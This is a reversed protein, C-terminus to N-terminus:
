RSEVGYFKFGNNVKVFQFNHVQNNYWVGFNIQTRISVEYIILKGPKSPRFHSPEMDQYDTASIKFEGNKMNNWLESGPLITRTSTIFTDIPEVDNYFDPSAFGECVSCVVSDLSLQKIKQTDNRNIAELLNEWAKLLLKKDKKSIKYEGSFVVSQLPIDHTTTDPVGFYGRARLVGRKKLEFLENVYNGYVAIAKGGAVRYYPEPYYRRIEQKKLRTIDFSVEDAFELVVPKVPNITDDTRDHDYFDYPGAWRGDNTKYLDQYQYKEHYYKGSDEVLYLLVTPYKEFPPRGYHDLVTFEITDSNYNGCVIELIRYRATFIADFTAKETKVVQLDIKQGIFVLMNGQGSNEMCGTMRTQSNSSVAVFLLMFPLIIRPLKKM